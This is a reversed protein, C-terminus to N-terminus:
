ALVVSHTRFQSAAADALAPGWCAAWGRVRQAHPLSARAGPGVAYGVDLKGDPRMPPDCLPNGVKGKVVGDCTAIVQIGRLPGESNFTIQLSENDKRFCGMLLGGMLARGLAATATPQTNHRRAAEQVLNTADVVMLAVEQNASLSRLGCPADRFSTRLAEIGIM